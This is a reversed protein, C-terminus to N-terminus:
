NLRIGSDMFIDKYYGYNNNQATTAMSCAMLAALCLNRTKMLRYRNKLKNGNELGFIPIKITVAFLFGSLQNARSRKHDIHGYLLHDRLHHRYRHSRHHPHESNQEM